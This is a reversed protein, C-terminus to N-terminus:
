NLLKTKKLQLITSIINYKTLNYSYENPNANKNTRELVKAAKNLTMFKSGKWADNDAENDAKVFKDVVAFFSYVEEGRYLMYRSKRKKTNAWGPHWDWKMVSILNLKGKIIAGVEELLERKAGQEPNEGKDIGGGPISLYHGADQAIIKGKYLLYCEAIKRYPLKNPLRKKNFKITM